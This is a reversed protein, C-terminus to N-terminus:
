NGTDDRETAFRGQAHVTTATATCSDRQCAAVLRDGLHVEAHTYGAMGLLTVKALDEADEDCGLDLTETVPALGDQRLLKFTYNAM